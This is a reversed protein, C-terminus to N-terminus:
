CASTGPGPYGTHLESVDIANGRIELVALWEPWNVGLIDIGPVNAAEQNISVAQKLM